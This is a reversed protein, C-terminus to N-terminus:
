SYARTRPQQQQIPMAESHMSLTSQLVAHDQVEQAIRKQQHHKRGTFPSLGVPPPAPVLAYSQSPVIRRKELPMDFSWSQLDIQCNIDGGNLNLTRRIVTEDPLRERKTGLVIPVCPATIGQQDSNEVVMSNASHHHHSFPDHKIPINEHENEPHGSPGSVLLVEGDPAILLAGPPVMASNKSKVTGRSRHTYASRLFNAEPIIISNETVNMASPHVHQDHEEDTKTGPSRTVNRILTDETPDILTTGRSINDNTNTSTSTKNDNDKDNEERISDITLLREAEEQISLPSTGCRDTAFTKGTGIRSLDQKSSKSSHQRNFLNLLSKDKEILQNTTTIQDQHVQIPTLHHKF